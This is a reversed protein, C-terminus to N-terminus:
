SRRACVKRATRTITSANSHLAVHLDPGYANSKEIADAVAGNRDSRALGVGNLLLGPTMKDALRNMFDAESGNGTIYPNYDQLSPSLFVTSM